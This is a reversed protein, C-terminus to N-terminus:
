GNASAQSALWHRSWWKTKVTTFAVGFREGRHCKAQLCARMFDSDKGPGIDEARQFRSFELIGM